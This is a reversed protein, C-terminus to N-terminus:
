LTRSKSPTETPDVSTQTASFPLRFALAAALDEIRNM